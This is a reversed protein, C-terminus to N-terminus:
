NVNLLFSDNESVSMRKMLGQWVKLRTSSGALVGLGSQKALRLDRGNFSYIFVLDARESSSKVKGVINDLILPEDKPNSHYTLVMHYDNYKLSKVYTLYLKEEPVGMALLTFFKAASFDECDGAYTTLLEVPTAWYDKKGWHDLDSVFEMQNFFNNVKNLKDRDTVSNDSLILEQLKTLPSPTIVIDEEYAPEHAAFSSTEGLFLTILLFPLIVGLFNFLVASTFTDSAM